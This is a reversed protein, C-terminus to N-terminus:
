RHSDNVSPDRVWDNGVSMDGVNLASIRGDGVRYGKGKLRASAAAQELSVVSMPSRRSRRVGLCAPMPSANSEVRCAGVGGDLGLATRRRRSKQYELMLTPAAGSEPRALNARTLTQAAEVCDCVRENSQASPAGDQLGGTCGMDRLIRRVIM